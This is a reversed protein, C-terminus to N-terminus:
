FGLDQLFFQAVNAHCNKKLCHQVCFHDNTQSIAHGEVERLQNKHQQLLELLGPDSLPSM